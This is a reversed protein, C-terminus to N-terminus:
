RLLLGCLCPRQPHQSNRHCYHLQRMFFGAKLIGREFNTQQLRFICINHCM